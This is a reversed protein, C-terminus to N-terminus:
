FKMTHKSDCLFDASIERVWDVSEYGLAFIIFYVMKQITITSFSKFIPIYCVNVLPNHADKSSQKRGEERRKKIGVVRGEKRGGIRGEEGKGMRKKRSDEREEKREEHPGVLYHKSIFRTEGM